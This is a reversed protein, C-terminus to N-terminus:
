AQEVDRHGADVAGASVLLAAELSAGLRRWLLLFRNTMSLLSLM